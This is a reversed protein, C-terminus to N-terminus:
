VKDIPWMLGIVHVLDTAHETRHLSWNLCGQQFFDHSGGGGLKVLHAEAFEDMKDIHHERVNM